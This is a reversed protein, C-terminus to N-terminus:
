GLAPQFAAVLSTVSLAVANTAGLSIALLLALHALSRRRGLLVGVAFFVVPTTVGVILLWWPVAAGIGLMEYVAPLAVLNSVAVFLTYGHLIAFVLAVVATPLASRFAASNRDPPPAAPSEAPATM